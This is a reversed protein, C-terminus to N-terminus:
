RLHRSLHPLPFHAYRLAARRGDQAAVRRGCARLGVPRGRAAPDGIPAVMQLLWLWYMCSDALRDNKSVGCM